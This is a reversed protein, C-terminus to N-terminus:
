WLKGVNDLFMLHTLTSLKSLEFREGEWCGNRGNREGGGGGCDFPNLKFLLTVGLMSSIIMIKAMMKKM